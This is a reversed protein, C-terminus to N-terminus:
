LAGKWAEALKANGSENPHVGDSFDAQVLDAKVTWPIQANIEEPCTEHGTGFQPPVASLIVQAGEKEIAEIAAIIKAPAESGSGLACDNTGILLLVTDASFQRAWGNGNRLVHDTQIGSFGSHRGHLDESGVFEDNPFAAMVAPRFGGDPKGVTISDGMFMIRRPGTPPETPTGGCCFLFMACTKM